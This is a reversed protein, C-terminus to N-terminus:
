GRLPISEVEALTPRFLRFRNRKTGDYRSALHVPFEAVVIDQSDAEAGHL